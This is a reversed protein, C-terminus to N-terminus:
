RASAIRDTWRFTLIAVIQAAFTLGIVLVIAFVLSLIGGVTQLLWSNETAFANLAGVNPLLSAALILVIVVNAIQRARQQVGDALAAQLQDIFAIARSKAFSFDIQDLRQDSGVERFRDAYHDALLLFMTVEFTRANPGKFDAEHCEAAVANAIQACLQRYPLRFFSRSNFHMVNQLEHRNRDRLKRWSRLGWWPRGGKRIPFDDKRGSERFHREVPEDILDSVVRSQVIERYFSDILGFAIIGALVGSLIITIFVGFVALGLAPFIDM